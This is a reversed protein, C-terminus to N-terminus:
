DLEHNKMAIQDHLRNVENETSQLDLRLLPTGAKVSDGARCYVEVIRSNIPSTIIEEFAASVTGTGTVTVEITGTDASGVTLDSAAVSARMMSGLAVAGAVVVAAIGAIKLIRNRKAKRRESNPIERDM